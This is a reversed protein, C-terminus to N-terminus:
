GSASAQTPRAPMFFGSLAWACRTWDAPTMKEITTMPKGSLRSFMRSMQRGDFHMTSVPDPDYMDMRVPNGGVEIMDLATPERFRMESVTELVEGNDKAKLEIPTSLGVKVAWDSSAEDAM